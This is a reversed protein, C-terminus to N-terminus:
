RGVAVGVFPHQLRGGGGLDHLALHGHTTASAHYAVQAPPCGRTVAWRQAAKDVLFGHLGLKPAAFQGVLM